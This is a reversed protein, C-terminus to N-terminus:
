AVRQIVIVALWGLIAAWAVQVVVVFAVVEYTRISLPRPRPRELTADAM